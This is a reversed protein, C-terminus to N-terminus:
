NEDFSNSVNHRGRTQWNRELLMEVSMGECCVVKVKKNKIQLLEKETLPEGDWEESVEPELEEDKSNAWLYENM